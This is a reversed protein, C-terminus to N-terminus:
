TQIILKWEEYEPCNVSDQSREDYWVSFCNGFHKTLCYMEDCLEEDCMSMDEILFSAYDDYYEEADEINGEDDKNGDVCWETFKEGAQAIDYSCMNIIFENNYM